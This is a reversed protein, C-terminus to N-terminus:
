DWHFGIVTLGFAIPQLDPANADDEFLTTVDYNAYLNLRGYGIRGVLGYKFQRLNFDDFDKIKDADNEVLKTFSRVRYGVRGGGVLRFSSGHNGPNSEYRFELPAFLYQTTLKYKDYGEQISQGRLEDADPAILQNADYFYNNYDLGIGTLVSLHRDILSFGPKVFTLQVNISRAPRVEMFDFEDPLKFDGDQLYNNLGIDVNLWSFKVLDAEDKETEEEEDDGFGSINITVDDGDISVAEQDQDSTTDSRATDSIVELTDTLAKIDLSLAELRDEPVQNLGPIAQYYTRELKQIREGVEAVDAKPEQAVNHSVFALVGFCILSLSKLNPMNVPKNTELHNSVWFLCKV